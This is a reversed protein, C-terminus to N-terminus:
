PKQAKMSQYDGLTEIPVSVKRRGIKLEISDPVKDEEGAEVSACILAGAGDIPQSLQVKTLPIQELIEAGHETLAREVDRHSAKRKPNPRPWRKTRKSKKKTIPM